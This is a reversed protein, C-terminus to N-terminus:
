VEFTSIKIQIRSHEEVLGYCSYIRLDQFLKM